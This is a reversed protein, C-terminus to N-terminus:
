RVTFHRPHVPLTKIEALGAVAAAGRETLLFVAAPFKMNSEILRQRQLPEVVAPQIEEVVASDLPFLRYVKAGDMTRQVKLTAGGALAVLLREQEVMLRM